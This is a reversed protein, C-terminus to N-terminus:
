FRIRKMLRDFSHEQKQDNPLSGTLVNLIKEEEEPPYYISLEPMFRKLPLLNVCGIAGEELITFSKFMEYSYFKEGITIGSTDLSYSLQRPQKGALIAFLIGV